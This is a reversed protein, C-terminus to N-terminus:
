KKKPNPIKVLTDAPFLEELKKALNSSLEQWEPIKSWYDEDTGISEPYLGNEPFKFNILPYKSEDNQNTYLFKFTRGTVRSQIILLLDLPESNNSLKKTANNLEKLEEVNIGGGGQFPRKKRTGRRFKIAAGKRKTKNSM